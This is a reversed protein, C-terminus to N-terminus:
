HNLNSRGCWTIRHRSLDQRLSAFSRVRLRREQLLKKCLASMLVAENSNM